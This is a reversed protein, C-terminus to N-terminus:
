AKLPDEFHQIAEKLMLFEEKSLKVKGEYDDKIIFADDEKEVTPCCSGQRCLRVSNQSEIVM